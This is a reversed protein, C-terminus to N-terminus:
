ALLPLCMTQLVWVLYAAAKPVARFSTFQLVGNSKRAQGPGEYFKGTHNRLVIHTRSVDSLSIFSKRSINLSSGLVYINIPRM